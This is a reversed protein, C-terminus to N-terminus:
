SGNWPSLDRGWVHSRPLLSKSRALFVWESPTSCKENTMSREWSEVGGFKASSYVHKTLLKCSCISSYRASSPIQAGGTDGMRHNIQPPRGCDPSCAESLNFRVWTAANVASTNCANLTERQKTIRTSEGGSYIVATTQQTSLFHGSAKLSEENQDTVIVIKTRLSFVIRFYYM